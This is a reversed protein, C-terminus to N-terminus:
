EEVCDHFEDIADDDRPDQAARCLCALDQDGCHVERAAEAVCYTVCPDVNNPLQQAIVSGLTALLVLSTKM